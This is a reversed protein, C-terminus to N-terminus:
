LLAGHTKVGESLGGGAMGLGVPGSARGSQNRAAVAGRAVLQEALKRASRWLPARRLVKEGSGHAGLAAAGKADDPLVALVGSAGTARVLEEPQWRGEGVIVLDIGQIGQDSLLALRTQLHDVDNLTPRVVVARVDAEEFLELVPSDPDLRGVDAVVDADLTALMQGFGARALAAVAAKAQRPDVPAVLADAGPDGPLRQTHDWVDAAGVNARAVAALTLLSPEARLHFLSVLDGGAPEAELHLVRREAPWAATVALATTTAGRSHRASAFAVYTM